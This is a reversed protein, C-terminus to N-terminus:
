DLLLEYMLYPFAWMLLGMPIYVLGVWCFNTILAYGIAVNIGLVALAILVVVFVRAIKEM